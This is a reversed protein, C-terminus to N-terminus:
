QGQTYFAMEAPTVPASIAAEEVGRHRSDMGTSAAAAAAGLGDAADAQAASAAALAQAQDLVEAVEALTASDVKHASMGGLLNEAAAACERGMTSARDAHDQAEAARAKIQALAARVAAIGVAESAITTMTPAGNAPIADTTSTGSIKVLDSAVLDLEDAVFSGDWRVETAHDCGAERQEDPTYPITRVTGTNGWKRHMVRDGDRFHDPDQPPDSVEPASAFGGTADDANGKPQERYPFPAKPQGPARTEGDPGCACTVRRCDCVDRCPNWESGHGCDPCTGQRDLWRTVRGRNPPGRRDHERVAVVEGYRVKGQEWGEGWGDRFSRGADRVWRGVGGTARAVVKGAGSAAPVPRHGASPRSPGRRPTFMPGMSTVGRALAYCICLFVLLVM